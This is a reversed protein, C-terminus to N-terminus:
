SVPVVFTAQQKHHQSDYAELNITIEASENDLAFCGQAGNCVAGNPTEQPYTSINGPYTKAVAKGGDIISMNLESFYLDQVDGTYGLNEYSYTVVVVQAPNLDSFENREDTATVSDITFRWQGDVTWAEGQGYTTKTDAAPAAEPSTAGDGSGRAFCSGLVFVFLLGLIGLVIIKGAGGQSKNCVPCIKARRDMESKCHVCKKTPQHDNM